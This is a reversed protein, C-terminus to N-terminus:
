QGLWNSIKNKMESRLGFSSQLNQSWAYVEIKKDCLKLEFRYVNCFTIKDGDLDALRDESLLTLNFHKKFINLVANGNILLIEIPSDRLQASLFEIDNIILTNKVNKDLNRWIPNTAWQVIDLHCATDLYYSVNFNKLIYNELQDFWRKYPNTKFYCICADYVRKVEIDTLNSLDTAGLTTLTEFRKENGILLVNENNLFENKSPNIGLTAVKSKEINGFFVVPTSNHVINLKDSPNTKIRLKTKETM